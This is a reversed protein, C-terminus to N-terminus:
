ETKILALARSIRTTVSRTSAVSGQTADQLEQDTGLAEVSDISIRKRLITKQTYPALCAAVFISEFLSIRFQGSKSAFKEPGIHSCNELFSSFLAKLYEIKKDSFKMSEKSFANLFKSMPSSYERYNFLMAFARILIEVDKFHIDPADQNLLRRWRMDQNLTIIMKYFDSYYLSMRIEQPSLNQGGTNLRNFIEYISSDDDPENQKIVISRITRMIEFTYKYEGLTEYKLGDLKNKETIVPSPLSLKFNTFYEDNSLIAAEIKTDGTLYERLKARGLTTPFRQKMFFYISLLRQQGDIVYFVNKGKEYLFVQPVPLGLIISEILKSARKIDWVYNRQFPPLRIVGNDILSFLTQINFDNPTSTIDYEKLVTDNEQELAENEEFWNPM